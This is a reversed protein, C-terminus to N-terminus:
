PSRATGSGALVRAEEEPEIELHTLTHHYRCLLCLNTIETEGGEEWPILHHVCWRPSRTCGPWLCHRDRAIVARRLGAPIVRTKRGVDLVESSAGFVIRSVSCDCLLTRLSDADIVTGNETEHIGGMRHHLADLDLHVNLHPREGGVTPSQSGELFSRGLDELADARRQGTTRTDGPAPPPMLAELATLLTEGALTPLEFHGEVMGNARRTLEFHRRRLQEELELRVGASNRWYELIKRTEEFGDGVLELLVAEAESYRDPDSAAVRFLLAAEDASLQRHKWASFTAPHRRAAQATKLYYHARHPAIGLRDRLYAVTSPHGSLHHDGAAEAAALTEIFELDLEHRAAELLMLHEDREDASASEPDELRPIVISRDKTLQGLGM